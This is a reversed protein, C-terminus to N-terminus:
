PTYKILPVDHTLKYSNILGNSPKIKSEAYDVAVDICTSFYVVYHEYEQKKVDIGSMGSYKFIDKLSKKIPIEDYLKHAGDQERIVQGTHLVTGKKAVYYYDKYKDIICKKDTKECDLQASDYEEKRIQNDYCSLFITKIWIIYYYWMKKKLCNHHLCEKLELKLM